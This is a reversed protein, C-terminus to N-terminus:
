KDGKQEINCVTESAVYFLRGVVIFYIVNKWYTAIKLLFESVWGMGLFFIIWWAIPFISLIVGRVTSKPMSLVREKLKKSVFFLLIGIAIYGMATLSKGINDKVYPVVDGFLFLPAVFQVMFGLLSFLTSLKKM